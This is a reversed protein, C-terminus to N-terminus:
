EFLYRDEWTNVQSEWYDWTVIKTWCIPDRWESVILLHVISKTMYLKMLHM